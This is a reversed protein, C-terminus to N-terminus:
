FPISDDLDDLDHKPMQKPSAQPISDGKERPEQVKLSIFKKGNRSEKIWGAIELPTGDVGAGDGKYDPQNEKEKYENKFLTFTGPKPVYDSMDAELPELIFTM